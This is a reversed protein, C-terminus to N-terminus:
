LWDVLTNTTTSGPAKPAKESQEERAAKPVLRVLRLSPFAAWLSIHAALFEVLEQYIYMYINFIIM